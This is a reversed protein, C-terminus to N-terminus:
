NILFIQNKTKKNILEFYHSNKILTAYTYLKYKEDDENSLELKNYYKSINKTFTNSNYLHVAFYFNDGHVMYIYMNPRGDTGAKQPDYKEDIERGLGNSLEEFFYKDNVSYHRYPSTDQFDKDQFSTVIYVYVPDDKEYQFPYKGKKEYYEVLLQAYYDFHRIRVIDADAQYITEMERYNQCSGLQVFAIFFLVAIFWQKYENGIKEPAIQEM